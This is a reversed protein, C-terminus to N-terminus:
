GVNECLQFRVGASMKPDVEITRYGGHRSMVPQEQVFGLGKKKLRGFLDDLRDVAWGVHSIGGGIHGAPHGFRIAFEGAPAGFRAPEEFHAVTKGCQFHAGRMGNSAKDDRRFPTMEFIKAMYDVMYDLGWFNYCAHHVHKLIGDDKKEIAWQHGGPVPEYVIPVDGAVQTRNGSQEMAAIEDPRMEEVLQFKVGRVTESYVNNDRYGGHPSIAPKSWWLDAGRKTWLEMRKELDDVHWAVHSIVPGGARRIYDYHIGVHARPQMFELLTPGVRWAAMVPRWPRVPGEHGERHIPQIEFFRDLFQEFAPLDLGYMSVHHADRFVAFGGYYKGECFHGLLV